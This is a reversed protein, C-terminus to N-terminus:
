AFQRQSQPALIEERAGALICQIDEKTLDPDFNQNYLDIALEAIRPHAVNSDYCFVRDSVIKVSCLIIAIIGIILCIRRTRGKDM